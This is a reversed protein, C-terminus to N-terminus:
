RRQDPGAPRRRGLNRDLWPILQAIFADSCEDHPCHGCQDIAILEIDPWTRQIHQGLAFPVFRDQVGWILLMPQSLQQLLAPATAGHPRLAMGVCMSRLSRAATRRMAARRISRLLADDNLVSHTYAAQLGAKLLPTRTIAPLLLELPLLRMLGHILRRSWRRRLPKRRATVPRILAPDPLPAAVVAQVHAPNLVAATLAALGGLSNGILITPQQIVAGIFASTQRGWLRNDLPREQGLGPQDSRGFGILDLGYVRYGREALAPACRRWHDCSAGFGHLVLVPQGQEPGLCRWHIRCGHWFWWNQDGWDM